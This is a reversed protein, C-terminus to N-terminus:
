LHLHLQIKYQAGVLEEGNIREEDAIAEEYDSYCDSFVDFEDASLSEESGYSTLSSRGSDVLSSIPESSSRRTSTNSWKHSKCYREMALVLSNCDPAYQSLGRKKVPTSTRNCNNMNFPYYLKKNLVQSNYSCDYQTKYQSLLFHSAPM